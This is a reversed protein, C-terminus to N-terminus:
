TAPPPPRPSVQGILRAGMGLDQALRAPRPAQNMAMTRVQVRQQRPTRAADPTSTSISVALSLSAGFQRMGDVATSAIYLRLAQVDINGSVRRCVPEAGLKVFVGRGWPGNM